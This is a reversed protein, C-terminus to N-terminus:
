KKLKLLNEMNTKLYNDPIKSLNESMDIISVLNSIYKREVPTYESMRNQKVIKDVGDSFMKLYKKEDYQQNLFGEIQGYFTEKTFEAGKKPSESSQVPTRRAMFNIPNISYIRM